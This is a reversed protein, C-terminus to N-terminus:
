QLVAMKLLGDRRMNGVWHLSQLKCVHTQFDIALRTSYWSAMSHIIVYNIYYDSVYNHMFDRQLPFWLCESIDLTFTYVYNHIYVWAVYMYTGYRYVHVYCLQVVSIVGLWASVASDATIMSVSSHATTLLKYYNKLM